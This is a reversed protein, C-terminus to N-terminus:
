RSTKEGEWGAVLDETERIYQAQGDADLPNETMISYSILVAAHIFIDPHVKDLLDPEGLMGRILAEGIGPAVTDRFADSSDRLGSVYDEVAQTSPQPGFKRGAAVTLAAAVVQTTEASGLRQAAHTPDDYGYEVITRLLEERDRDHKSHHDNM